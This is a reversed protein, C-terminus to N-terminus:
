SGTAEVAERESTNKLAVRAVSFPPSVLFLPYTAVMMLGFTVVDMAWFITGHMGLGMVVSLWIGRRFGFGVSMWLESVITGISGLLIFAPIAEVCGERSMHDAIWTLQGEDLDGGSRGRPLERGLFRCLPFGSGFGLILKHLGTYFYVILVQAQILRIPLAPSSKPAPRKALRRVLAQLSWRRDAGAFSTLLLLILLMYIHNRFNLQSVFFLSAQCAFTALAFFRSFIGLALAFAFRMQWECLAHLQEAGWNLEVGYPLHLQGPTYQGIRSVNQGAEFWATFGLVVRTVAMARGDVPSELVAELGRNVKERFTM